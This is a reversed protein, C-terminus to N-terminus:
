MKARGSRPILRVSLSHSLSRLAISIKTRYYIRRSTSLRRYIEIRGSWLLPIRVQLPLNTTTLPYSLDAM